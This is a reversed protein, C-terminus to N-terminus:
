GTLHPVAFQEYSFNHAKNRLSNQFYSLGSLWTLPNSFEAFHLCLYSTGVSKAMWKEGDQKYIGATSSASDSWLEEINMATGKGLLLSTLTASIPKCRCETMAQERYLCRPPTPLSARYWLLILLLPSKNSKWILSILSAPLNVSTRPFPM